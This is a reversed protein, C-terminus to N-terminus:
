SKSYVSETSARDMMTQVRQRRRPMSSSPLGPNQTARRSQRQQPVPPPPMSSSPPYPNQTAQSQLHRDMMTQVLQKRSPRPMSSSPLEPNQNVQSQQQQRYLNPERNQPAPSFPMLPSLPAPSPSPQPGFLGYGGHAPQPTESYRGPAGPDHIPTGFHFPSGFDPGPAPTRPQPTPSSWAPPAGPDHIPTGFHFPSGFDPGPAPTQPQPTPSSWAPPAGPDHIPTGFHFPSGFDPGPAPTQPQPTPSSWAPPAGPDHIPTGFHFPSGFDPGPAPTRPQPTPSRVVCSSCRSRCLPIWLTRSHPSITVTPASTRGSYIGDNTWGAAHVETILDPTEFRPAQPQQESLFAQVRNSDIGTYRSINAPNIAMGNTRLQNITEVVQNQETINLNHGSSSDWGSGGMGYPNNSPPWGPGSGM